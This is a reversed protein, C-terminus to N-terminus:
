QYTDSSIAAPTWGKFFNIVRKEDYSDGKELLASDQTHLRRGSGDVIVFVPFGFRQPYELKKLVDLNKNAQNFNVRLVVYNENIISTIEENEKCFKHFKICWGCWNGGIQILVHKNSSNAMQIANNLDAMADADQDYLSVQQEQGNLSVTHVIIFLGTLIVKSALYQSITKM